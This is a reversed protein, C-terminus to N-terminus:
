DYVLSHAIIYGLVAVIGIGLFVRWSRIALGPNEDRVQLLGAPHLEGTKIYYACIHALDAAIDPNAHEGPLCQVSIQVSDEAPAKVLYYGYERKSPDDTRIVFDSLVQIPMQSYEGIYSKAREWATNEEEKPINFELPLKRAAALHEEDASTRGRSSYPTCGTLFLEIVLIMIFPKSCSSTTM